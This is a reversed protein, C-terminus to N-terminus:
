IKGPKKQVTMQLRQGPVSFFDGLIHMINPSDFLAQRLVRHMGNDLGPITVEPQSRLLAQSAKVPMAKLNVIFLVYIGSFPLIATYIAMKELQQGDQFAIQDGAPFFDAFDM